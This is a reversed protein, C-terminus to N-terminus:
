VRLVVTSVAGNSLHPPSDSAKCAFIVSSSDAFIETAPASNGPSWEVDSANAHEIGVPKGLMAVTGNTLGCSAASGSAAFVLGAHGAMGHCGAKSETAMSKGICQVGACLPGCASAFLLGVALLCAGTAGFFRTLRKANQKPMMAIKIKGRWVQRADREHVVVLSM